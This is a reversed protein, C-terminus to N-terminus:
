QMFFPFPIGAFRILASLKYRFKYVFFIVGIIWLVFVVVYIWFILTDWSEAKDELKKNQEQIIQIQSDKKESLKVGADLTNKIREITSKCRDSNIQSNCDISLDIDNKVANVEAEYKVTDVKPTSSCGVLMIILIFLKKM